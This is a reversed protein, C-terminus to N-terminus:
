KQVKKFPPEGPGDVFPPKTNRIKNIVFPPLGRGFLHKDHTPLQGAESLVKAVESPGCVQLANDLAFKLEWLAREQMEQENM